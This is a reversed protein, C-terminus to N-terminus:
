FLGAANLKMGRDLEESNESNTAGEQTEAQLSPTPVCLRIKNASTPAPSQKTRTMSTQTCITWCPGRTLCSVHQRYKPINKLLNAQNFDGAVFVAEPHSAEQLSVNNYLESLALKSTAQPLIYVATIIICM